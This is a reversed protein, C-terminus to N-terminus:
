AHKILSLSIDITLEIGELVKLWFDDVDLTYNELITKRLFQMFLLNNKAFTIVDIKYISISENMIKSYNNVALKKDALQHLDARIMWRSIESRNKISHDITAMIAESAGIRRPYESILFGASRAEKNPWQDYVIDHHLVAYDLDQDYAVNQSELYSYCDLIHQWNHYQCSNKDYQEKAIIGVNTDVLKSWM